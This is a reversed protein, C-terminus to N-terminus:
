GANRAEEPALAALVTMYREHQEELIGSLVAQDRDRIGRAIDKLESSVFVELTGSTVFPALVGDLAVEFLSLGGGVITEIGVILVGWALNLGYIGAKKHGPIGQRLKEFRAKLWENTEAFGAEMRQRAYEESLEPEAEAMLSGVPGEQFLRSVRVQFGTLAYVLPGEDVHREPIRRGAAARAPDRGLGLMRVPVAFVGAVASRVPALVDYRKYLKQIEPKLQSKVNRESVDHLKTALDARAQALADEVQRVANSWAAREAVVAESLEKELSGVRTEAVRREKGKLDAGRRAAEQLVTDRLGAAEENIREQAGGPVYAVRLVPLLSRLGWQVFQGEVDNAQAEETVKNVVVRAAKGWELADKLFRVGRADAYKEPTAVFLVYDALLFLRLATKEHEAYLSDIDPSDVLLLDPAGPEAVLVTFEDPSGEVPGTIGMASLFRREVPLPFDDSELAGTAHRPCLALAGRTSPREVGSRAYQGRSLANFLSSKGCGTGGAMLVVPPLKPWAKKYELVGRILRVEEALRAYEVPDAALGAIREPLASTKLNM